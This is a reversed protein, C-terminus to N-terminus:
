PVGSDRKKGATTANKGSLAANVTAASRRGASAGAARARSHGRPPRTRRQVGAPRSALDCDECGHRREVRDSMASPIHRPAKSSSRPPVARHDEDDEARRALQDLERRHQKAEVLATMGVHERRGPLLHLLDGREQLLEAQPLGVEPERAPARPRSRRTFESMGRSPRWPARARPARVVSRAARAARPGPVGARGRERRCSSSRARAAQDAARQARRDRVDFATQAAVVQTMRKGLLEVSLERRREAADVVRGTGPGGRVQTAAVDDVRARVRDAVAELEHGVLRGDARRQRVDTRCRRAGGSRAGSCGAPQERLRDLHERVRRRRVGSSKM